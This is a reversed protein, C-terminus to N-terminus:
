IASFKQLVDTVVKGGIENSQIYQQLEYGEYVPVVTTGSEGCLVALGTNEGVFNLSLTAQSVM